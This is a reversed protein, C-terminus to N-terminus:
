QPQKAWFDSIAKELDPDIGQASSGKKFLSLWYIISQVDDMDVDGDKTEISQLLDKLNGKVEGLCFKLNKERMLNLDESQNGGLKDFGM